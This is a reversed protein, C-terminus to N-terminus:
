NISWLHLKVAIDRMQLFRGVIEETIMCESYIKSGRILVMEFVLSLPKKYCRVM